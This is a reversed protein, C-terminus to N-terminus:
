NKGLMKTGNTPSTNGATAIAEINKYIEKKIIDYFNIVHYLLEALSSFSKNAKLIFSGKIIKITFTADTDFQM